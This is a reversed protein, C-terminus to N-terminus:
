IRLGSLVVVAIAHRVYKHNSRASNLCVLREGYSEGLDFRAGFSVNDHPMMTTYPRLDKVVFSMRCNAHGECKM